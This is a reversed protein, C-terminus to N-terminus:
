SLPSGNCTLKSLQANAKSALEPTLPAYPLQDSGAGLTKQGAGLAYTLWTKLGSATSSSLLDVASPETTSTVGADTM